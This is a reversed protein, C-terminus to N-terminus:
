PQQARPPTQLSLVRHQHCPCSTDRLTASPGPLFVSSCSRVADKLQLLPRQLLRFTCGPPTTAKSLQHGLGESALRPLGQWLLRDRQAQRSRRCTRCCLKLPVWGTGLCRETTVSAQLAGTCSSSSLILGQRQYRSQAPPPGTEVQVEDLTRSISASSSEATTRGM